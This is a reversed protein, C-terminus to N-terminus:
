EDRLAHTIRTRVIKLAPIATGILVTCMIIIYVITSVVLFHPWFYDVWIKDTSLMAGQITYLTEYYEGGDYEHIGSHAYNLYIICGIIVAATALLANRWLFDFLLRGRTAGFARRVGCEETRRKAHLWVTGIVALMLNVLFFLALALSRNVEQTRGDDLELRKLYEDFTMLNSIRSFGTRGSRILDNGHEEVFRSANVGKKLRIVYQCSTTQLEKTTIIMSRITTPVSMRFDEVVGVVTVEYAPDYCITFHRGIVEETGFLAIAGSRTLVVQRDVTKIHSLEEASPSGPLPKLGYTEFFHADTTLMVNALLLTDGGACCENYATQSYGMSGYSLDFLYASEVGEVAMLQRLIQDRREETMEYPDQPVGDVLENWSGNVETEAYLLRDNDYGLPLSRYYLNVVAPEFVAWAVVTIIVLELFLLGVGAGERHTLSTSLKYGSTKQSM